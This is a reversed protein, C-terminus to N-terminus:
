LSPPEVGAAEVLIENLILKKHICKLKACYYEASATRRRAERM